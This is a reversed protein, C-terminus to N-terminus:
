RLSTFSHGLRFGLLHLRTVPQELRGARTSVRDELVLHMGMDLVLARVATLVDDSETVLPARM